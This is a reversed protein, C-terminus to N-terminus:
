KATLAGFLQVRTFGNATSVGAVRGSGSLAGYAGTGGVAKWTGTFIAWGDPLDVWEIRNRLRLTGHAGKFTLHPDNVDLSEGARVVHSTTWCCFTLAGTDAQIRGSTMPTLVFTESNAGSAEIRIHQGAPPTGAAIPALVALAVLVATATLTKRM